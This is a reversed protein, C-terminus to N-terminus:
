KCRILPQYSLTWEVPQVWIPGFVNAPSIQDMTTLYILGHTNLSLCLDAINRLRQPSSTVILLRITRFPHGFFDKTSYREFQREKLSDLFIAVKRAITAKRNAKGRLVENGRDYELEFLAKGAETGFCFVADRRYTIFRRRNHPDCVKEDLIRKLKGHGTSAHYEPFYEFSIGRQKAAAIFACIVNNLEIHHQVVVANQPKATPINALDLEQGLRLGLTRVSKRNLFYIKAPRGRDGQPVPFSVLLRCDELKALRRQAVNWNQYLCMTAQEITLYQLDYALRVAEIDRRTVGNAPTSQTVPTQM